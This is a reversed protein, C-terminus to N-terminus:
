DRALSLIRVSSCGSNLLAEACASTTAGTTIVDDVLLISKNRILDKLSDTCDFAGHVNKRRDSKDLKVQTKTRRKRFLGSTILAPKNRSSIIGRSFWEAQNYGRKLKRVWHLPVATIFDAGDFISDSIYTSFLSGIYYALHKKNFYKIHHMITQVNEDYDLFSHISEFPFEWLFDCTCTRISTNQSCRPCEKRQNHNSLIKNYCKNCFWNNDPQRPEDCLICLPPFILNELRKLFPNFNTKLWRQKMQNM